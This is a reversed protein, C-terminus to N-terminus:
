APTFSGFTVETEVVDVMTGRPNCYSQAIGTTLFGLKEQVKLSAPNDTIVGAYLAEGMMKGFFREVLASVAESMYGKGWHDPLLWYGIHWGPRKGGERREISIIGELAGGDLTIAYAWGEIEGGQWARIFDLADHHDYPVPVPLLMRVVEPTQMGKAIRYQDEPKLPRLTLRSTRIVPQTFFSLSSQRHENQRHGSPRVLVASM